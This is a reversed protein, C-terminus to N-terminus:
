IRNLLFLNIYEGKVSNIKKNKIEVIPQENFLSVYDNIINEIIKDTQEYTLNEDFILKCHFFEVDGVYYNARDNIEEDSFEEEESYVYVDDIDEKYNAKKGVYRVKLKENQQTRKDFYTFDNFCTDRIVYNDFNWRPLVDASMYARDDGTEDPPRGILKVIYRYPMYFAYQINTKTKTKTKM